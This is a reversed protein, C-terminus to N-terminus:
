LDGGLEGDNDNEETLGFEEGHEKKWQDESLGDQHVWPEKCDCEQIMCYNAGFSVGQAAEIPSPQLGIIEYDWLRRIRVRGLEFLDALAEVAQRKTPYVNCFDPM